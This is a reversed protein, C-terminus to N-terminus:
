SFRSTEAVLTKWGVVKQKRRIIGLHNHNSGARKRGSKQVYQRHWAQCSCKWEGNLDVVSRKLRNYAKAWWNGSM